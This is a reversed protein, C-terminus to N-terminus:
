KKFIETSYASIQHEDKEVFNFDAANKSYVSYNKVVHDIAQQLDQRNEPDFSVGTEPDLLLENLSGIRDSLVLACNRYLAEEVVLGWTESFSPLIFVQHKKYIVDLDKNDVFGLWTINSKAIARLETELTGNGAITLPLGNENFVALLTRVNKLEIVRGVYLFKFENHREVFTERVPKDALGVGKTVIVKERFGMKRLVIEHMKGSALAQSYRSLLIKKIYFRVGSLKTEGASEFQLVNKKKPTLFSNLIFEPDVYGGYIIKEFSFAKVIKRLAFFSELISRHNLKENLMKYPFIIDDQFDKDIVVQDYYGIFVVFIKRHKAIENYLNIKYFAPCNNLILLDYHDKM